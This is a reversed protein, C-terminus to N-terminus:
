VGSPFCYWVMLRLSMSSQGLAQGDSEDEDVDATALTIGGRSSYETKM